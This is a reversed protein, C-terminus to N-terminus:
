DYSSSHLHDATVYCADCLRQFDKGKAQSIGTKPFSRNVEQIQKAQVYPTSRGIHSPKMRALSPKALFTATLKM